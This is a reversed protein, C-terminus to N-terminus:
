RDCEGASFKVGSHVASAIAALVEGEAHDSYLSNGLGSPMLLVVDKAQAERLLEAYAAYTWIGGNWPHLGVLLASPRKAASASIM